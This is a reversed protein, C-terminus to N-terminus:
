RVPVRPHCRAAPDDARGSRLQAAALIPEAPRVFRRHGSRGAGLVKGADGAARVRRRSLYGIPSFARPRRRLAVAEAERMADVKVEAARDPLTNPNRTTILRASRSGGQMFPRLHDRNWVDDIVILIDRDALLEKLRAIASELNSFGPREGSLTQILDEVRGTLDGPNEGLTVWLIGDDFADQIREDHCLAKAITTKGYGGAGRLAATIAVPEERNQDLLLAVLQDFENPRQVFGAPLDEVMFPVRRVDPTKNLDNLFKQWEPGFSEGELSGLDYFHQDRMWRPLSNFDLDPSGKIPYVCVGQQRAYRWEKRVIESKLANPTVVLAMFQVNDLAETIQLWWDRGGELAVRDQWLKIQQKELRQRLRHAFAEGDSRAYSIFVGARPQNSKSQHRHSYAM